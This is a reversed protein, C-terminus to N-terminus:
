HHSIWLSKRLVWLITKLLILHVSVNGAQVSLSLPPVFHFSMKPDSFNQLCFAHNYFGSLQSYMNGKIFFSPHSLSLPQSGLPCLWSGHLFVGPFCCSHTRILSSGINAWNSKLVATSWHCRHGRRGGKKFSYICCNNQAEGVVPHQTHPHCIVQRKLECALLNYELLKVAGLGTKPSSIQVQQCQLPFLRKFVEPSTLTNPTLSLCPDRPAGPIRATQHECTYTTAKWGTRPNTQIVLVTCCFHCGTGKPFLNYFVADETNPGSERDGPNSAKPSALQQATLVRLGGLPFGVHHPSPAELWFRRPISGALWWSPSKPLPEEVGSAQQRSQPSAKLKM